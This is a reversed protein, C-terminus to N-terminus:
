WYFWRYEQFLNLQNIPNFGVNVVVIGVAAVVTM